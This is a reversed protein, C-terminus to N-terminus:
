QVRGIFFGYMNDFVKRKAAIPRLDQEITEFEDKPFLNPVEGSNLINNIDELFQENVIQNDAILFV